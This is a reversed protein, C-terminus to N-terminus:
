WFSVIKGIRETCNRLFTNLLINKYTDTTNKTCNLEKTM